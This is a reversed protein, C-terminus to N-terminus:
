ISKKLWARVKAECDVSETGTVALGKIVRSAPCLNLLDGLSSGFGSGESTCFPLIKKGSLDVSELFTKIAMPFTGWWIPYGLFITDYKDLNEPIGLLEPRADMEQEEAARQTTAHYSTSYPDKPELKFMDAGTLRKITEALRETNGKDVFRIKGAYYNEGSRSFYVILARSM